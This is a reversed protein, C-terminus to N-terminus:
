LPNKGKVGQRHQAGVEAQLVLNLSKMSTSQDRRAPRPELAAVESLGWRAEEARPM